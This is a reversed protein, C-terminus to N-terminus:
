SILSHRTIGRKRPRIRQTQDAVANEIEEILADVARDDEATAADARLRRVQCRVGALQRLMARAPGPRDGLLAALSGHLMKLRTAFHDSM